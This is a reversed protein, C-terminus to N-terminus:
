LGADRIQRIDQVFEVRGMHRAATKHHEKHDTLDVIRQLNVNVNLITWSSRPHPAVGGPMGVSGLLAQVEFLAVLHNEALYLIPYSPKAVSADNFRTSFSQIHATSGAAPLFHSQLARYWIGSEHRSPLLACHSFNM